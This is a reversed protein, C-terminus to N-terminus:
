PAPGTPLFPPMTHTLGTLWEKCLELGQKQNYVRRDGIRSRRSSLVGNGFSSVRTRLRSIHRHDPVDPVDPFEFEDPGDINLPSQLKPRAEERAEDADDARSNRWEIKRRSMLAETLKDDQTSSLHLAKLDASPQSRSVSPHTSDPEEPPSNSSSTNAPKRLIDRMEKSGMLASFSASLDVLSSRRGRVFSAPKGTGTNRAKNVQEDQTAEQAEEALGDVEITIASDDEIGETTSARRIQSVLVEQWGEEMLGSPDSRTRSFGCDEKETEEQTGADTIASPGQLIPEEHSSCTSPRKRAAVKELSAREDMTLVDTSSKSGRHSGSVSGLEGSDQPGSESETKWQSSSEVMSRRRQGAAQPPSQPLKPKLKFSAIRQVNRALISPKDDKNLDLTDSLALDEDENAVDFSSIASVSLSRQRGFGECEKDKLEVDCPSDHAVFSNAMADPHVYSASFSVGQLDKWLGVREASNLRSRLSGRFASVGEGDPGQLGEM